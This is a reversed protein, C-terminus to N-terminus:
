PCPHAELFPRVREIWRLWNAHREVQASLGAPLHPRLFDRHTQVRMRETQSLRASRFRTVLMMIEYWRINRALTQSPYCAALKRKLQVEEPALERVEEDEPTAFRNLTQIGRLYTHYMPFEIVACERASNVSLNVADHDLHGQEFAHTVIRDPRFREIEAGITARLEPLCDVLSGDPYTSYALQDDSAGIIAMAARSEAERISNSHMWVARVPNGRRVCQRIWAAVGIEDDPHAFVFLWRLNPDPDFAVM